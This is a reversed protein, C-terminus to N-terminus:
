FPFLFVRNIMSKLVIHLIKYLLLFYVYLDDNVNVDYDDDDNFTIIMVKSLKEMMNVSGM